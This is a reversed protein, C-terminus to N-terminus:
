AATEGRDERLPIGLWRTGDPLNEGKMLLSLDGISAGEGLEADYLLTSMAGVASRRGLRVRGMKMVRDEFLHTQINADENLAAEDGIEILDFETFWTTDVYCRRGIKMGFLRLCWPLFPTGRLLDLFFLVALNEYVGTALESRWVFGCWLPKEEVRYRGILIWKLAATSLVSLVGAAVYLLPLLMLWQYLDIYDQLVDTANMMLSALVVFLTSPLVVRFFEVFLRQAILRTAPRYTSGESFGAHLARAPLRIAPSGFWTSGDPVPGRVGEPPISLTGILVGSGLVAGPPLVASNGVFARDGVRARGVELWGGRVRAAGVLVDDALFCEAGAELLDPQVLRITSVESRPGIRAGMARLWPRLYLTTYLTGTVELSLAMLQDFFWKRRYLPGDVPYRGEELRGILLWKLAWVEACLFVVFSFAAFPAAVLFTFGEDAHGLHTMLMLGPFVAALVVFPFLFVGLISAYYGRRSWPPRSEEVPMPGAPAAPSGRWLEGAPVRAGDPLMSLDDLGAGDEVVSGGGLSCRHGIWAGRGVTVPALTLWGGEVSSGELPVDVGVSAGDGVTLLDFSSLGHSRLFVDRGIKAGMARYYLNLLPTGDLYNVPAARVVARVFWFRLYYWSWLRHRGPRIEGLVLWKLAISLLLVSPTTVMYVIFAGALADPVSRDAVALYGYTLFAGLWQWSYLGAVFFVGLAQGAACAFHRKPVVPEHERAARPSGPLAALRAFREVTPHAYLEGISVKEFGPKRRLRSIALAAALSHGGMDLFFDDRVSVEGRGLASAWVEAVSREAADRPAIREGTAGDLPARPAPLRRRDIKGSSTMPLEPLEDLFAPVMYPPLSAILAERVERRDLEAGARRVVFAAVGQTAAHVAAAGALVGPCRALAADIEALEVRHGRIKVQDDGRGLYEIDGDPTFRALDATRYLRLPAGTLNERVVFKERTLEPRNLYGRAVGAGGVCLEGSEGPAVPEGREDLLFVRYNALPRGITVPRNPELAGGTAVVTTETPGYTNLLRRGPRHWRAALDAPCTEGGLILLRLSPVDEEVMMLFTPVCSLVTVGDAALARSFEPGARITEPTGAILAAGAFFAAWIEEVSADFAPSAFQFIRDEATIAYLLAEARVLNTANRHEIMVGKPKGTTGSTYIVYALSEPGTKTETRTVRASPARSLEEADRDLRLIAPFALADALGDSSILAKAGSDELIFDVREAPTTPDLPVYAAGAKLVGLMAEYVRDSRPLLIAVRDERGVGRARLVRALRNAREELERYSVREAGRVVAAADPARDASAEFLEHLLEDRILSPDPPPGSWPGIILGREEPTM